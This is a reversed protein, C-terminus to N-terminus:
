RRWLYVTGDAFAAAVLTGGSAVAVGNVFPGPVSYAGAPATAAVEWLYVADGTSGVLFDGRPSFALQQMSTARSYPGPVPSDRRELPMPADRRAPPM